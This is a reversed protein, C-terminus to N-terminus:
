QALFIAEEEVVEKRLGSERLKRRTARGSWKLGTVTWREFV